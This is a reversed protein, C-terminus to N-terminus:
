NKNLKSFKIIEKFKEKKKGKKRPRNNPQHPSVFISRRSKALDLRVLRPHPEGKGPRERPQNGVMMM